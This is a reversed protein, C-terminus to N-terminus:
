NGLTNQWVLIRNNQPMEIDNILTLGAQEALQDCWEFDKIGSNPNRQKLWDNFRANSDSTFRGNYNFPGYIMLTAKRALVQPLHEFLDVINQKAMIHFSNASFVADFQTKPWQEPESVNLEIPSIINDIQAEELWQCIGSHSEILDSTQWSLHNLQETFHIAHQGTGSAIELVSKKDRLYPTISELIVHKNEECSQSFPKNM